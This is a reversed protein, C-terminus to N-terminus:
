LTFDGIRTTLLFVPPCAFVCYFHNNVPSINSLLFIKKFFLNSICVSRGDALESDLHGCRGPQALSFHSVLFETKNEWMPSLSWVVQAIVKHRWNHAM